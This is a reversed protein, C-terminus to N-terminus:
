KIVDSDNNDNKPQKHELYLSYLQTHTRKYKGGEFLNKMLFATWTFTYISLCCLCNEPM